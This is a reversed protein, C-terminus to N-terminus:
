ERDHAHRLEQRRQRLEQLRRARTEILLGIRRRAAGTECSEALAELLELDELLEAIWCEVLEIERATPGAGRGSDPM